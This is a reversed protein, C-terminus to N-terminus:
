RTPLISQSINGLSAKKCSFVLQLSEANQSRDLIKRNVLREAENMQDVGAQNGFKGLTPRQTMQEKLFTAHDKLRERRKAEELREKQLGDKAAREAELKHRKDGEVEAARKAKAADRQRKLDVAIEAKQVEMKAAKAAQEALIKVALEEAYKRAREAEERQLRAAEAALQNALQGPARGREEQKKKEIDRLRDQEELMAETQMMHATESALDDRRRRAKNQLAAKFAQQREERVRMMEEAKKDAAENARRQAAFSEQVRDEELRRAQLEVNSRARRIGEAHRDQSEWFAKREQQQQQLKQRDEEKYRVADAKLKQGWHIELEHAERRRDALNGKQSTLMEVEQRKMEVRHSRDQQDQLLSDIVDVEHILKWPLADADSSGVLRGVHQKANRTRPTDAPTQQTFHKRVVPSRKILCGGIAKRPKAGLTPSSASLTLPASFAM